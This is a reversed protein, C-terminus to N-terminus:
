THRATPLQHCISALRSTSASAQQCGMMLAFSRLLAWLLALFYRQWVCLCELCQSRLDKIDRYFAVSFSFFAGVVDYGDDYKQMM